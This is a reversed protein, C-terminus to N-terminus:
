NSIRKIIKNIDGAGLTICIDGPQLKEKIQRALESIDGIYKVKNKNEFEEAIMESSIDEIAQENASYIDTIYVFDAIKLSSPFEKYLDRTRTFRHPQFVAIIRKDPYISKLSKLSLKIETPHHAYDDYFTINNFDGVKELRRGVGKYQLIAEKIVEFGIGMELGAACAGLANIINHMGSSNVAIEGLESEKRLLRFSSKEPYLNIKKARYDNGKGLGYTKYPRTLDGLIDRINEDDGCLVSFGYFPVKNLFEAFTNKLKDMNKYFNMHDNDINTIIGITPTYHLFSGDSEDAEAVIFDGDGLKVNSELNKLRGGIVVTPDMDAGSLILGILSTTTTKGHSGAVCISYKLRMLEALMEARPIVPINNNKAYVIEINDDSIASSVVVVHPKNVNDKNHGISIDAGLNRLYKVNKSESIDSGSIQYGMNILVEAIGCMGSGGVGVFHIKKIKDFM